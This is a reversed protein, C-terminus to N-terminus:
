FPLGKLGQVGKLAAIEGWHGAIHILGINSFFAIFPQKGPPGDVERTLQEDTANALFDETSQAVAKAYERFTDLDIALNALHEDQYPNPNDIGLKEAWGDSVLIPAQGKGMGNVMMDETIFTHAYISGVKNITWGAERKELVEPSCDAITMDLLQHITQFQAHLLVRAEM